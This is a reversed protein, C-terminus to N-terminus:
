LLFRSRNEEDVLRCEDKRGFWDYRNKAIVNSYFLDRLPKPVAMLALQSPAALYWNLLKGVRLVAESRVFAQNDQVLVVTSLDRPADFKHLLMRGVDSQLAAFKLRRSEDHALVFDVGANCLVCSGDFLLVVDGREYGKSRLM